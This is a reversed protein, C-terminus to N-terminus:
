SQIEKEKNIKLRLERNKLLLEKSTKKNMYTFESYREEKLDKKMIAIIRNRKHTIKRIDEKLITNPVYIKNKSIFKLGLIANRTTGVLVDTKLLIGSHSFEGVQNALQEIKIIQPLIELKWKTLNNKFEFDKISLKHNLCIEYFLASSINENKLKLGTLHFFNEKKFMVEIFEIKNEKTKAIFLLKKDRLLQEYLLIAKIVKKLAEEKSLYQKM